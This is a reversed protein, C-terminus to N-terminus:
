YKKLIPIVKEIDELNNYYNFAFRLLTFNESTPYRKLSIYIKNKILEDYIQEAKPHELTIIGSRYHIDISTIIKLNLERIRGLFESTIFQIREQINEVACSISGDGIHTKLFELAGKLTLLGAVNPCGGFSDMSQTRHVIAMNDNDMAFPDPVSLWSTIPLDKNELVNENIYLIGIGYGCALWKLANSVLIDIRMKKIDIPFSGFAQTANVINILNNQSCFEGLANLDQKFGTLSQVYSHVLYKTDNNVYQTFDEVKYENLENPQIKKCSYGERKFSHISAPFEVSPYIIGGNDNKLLYAVINIGASTNLTFAIEEPKCNIYEAVLNRATNIEEIYHEWFIDGHNLLDNYYRIGEQYASKLMPSASAAMIYTYKELAPFQERRISEWDIKM